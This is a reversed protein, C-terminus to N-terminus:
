CCPSGDENLCRCPLDLGVSPKVAPFPVVNGDDDVLLGFNKNLVNGEIHTERTNRRPNNWLWWLLWAAGAIAGAKIVSKPVKM